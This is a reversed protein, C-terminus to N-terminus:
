IKKTPAPKKHLPNRRPSPTNPIALGRVPTASGAKVRIFNLKM